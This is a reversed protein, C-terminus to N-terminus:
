KLTSVFWYVRKEDETAPRICGPLYAWRVERNKNDSVFQVIVFKNFGMRDVRGTEGPHAVDPNDILAVTVIDGVKYNM